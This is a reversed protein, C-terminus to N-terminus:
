TASANRSRKRYFRGPDRAAKFFMRKFEMAKAKVLLAKIQNRMNRDEHFVGFTNAVLGEFVGVISKQYDNLGFARHDALRPCDKFAYRRQANGNGYTIEHAPLYQRDGNKLCYIYNTDIFIFFINEDKYNDLVSADIFGDTRFKVEVEMLDYKGEDNKNNSCIVFDPGYEFREIARARVKGRSKLRAIRPLKAEFGVPYVDYGLCVFLREVVAEALRGKMFSYNIMLGDSFM